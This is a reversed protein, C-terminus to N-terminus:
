FVGFVSSIHPSIIELMRRSDFVTAAESLSGLSARPVGLKKQV